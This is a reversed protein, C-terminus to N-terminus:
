GPLDSDIQELEGFGKGETRWRMDQMTAHLAGVPLFEECSALKEAMEETHLWSQM